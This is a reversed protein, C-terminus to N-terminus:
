WIFFYRAIRWRQGQMRRMIIIWVAIILIWPLFGILINMWESSEKDFSYIIGKAKWIAEQDKIMPEPIYVSIAKVTTTSKDITVIAESTLDARFVYDNLDSKIIQASTIKGTENLLKEYEGFPIEVYNETGSRFVQMLIVAAVIVAGWGFVM